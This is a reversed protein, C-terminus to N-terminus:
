KKNVRDRNLKLTLPDIYKQIENFKKLQKGRLVDKVIANRKETYRLVYPTLAKRTKMYSSKKINKMDVNSSVSKSEQPYKKTNKDSIKKHAKSVQYAYESFANNFITKQKSNLKLEDALYNVVLAANKKAIKADPMPPQNIQAFSMTSFLCLLTLIINRM